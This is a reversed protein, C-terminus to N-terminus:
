DVVHGKNLGISAIEPQEVPYPYPKGWYLPLGGYREEWADYESQLFPLSNYYIDDDLRFNDSSWQDVLGPIHPPNTGCDPCYVNPHLEKIDCGIHNSLRSLERDQEDGEWLQEM